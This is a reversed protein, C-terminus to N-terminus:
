RFTRRLAAFAIGLRTSALTERAVFKARQFTPARLLERRGMLRFGGDPLLDLGDLSRMADFLPEPPAAGHIFTANWFTCETVAAAEAFTVSDFTAGDFRCGTITAGPFAVDARDSQVIAGSFDCRILLSHSFSTHDLTCGRADLGVLECGDFAVRRLSTPEAGARSLAARVSRLDEVHQDEVEFGWLPLRPTDHSMVEGLSPAARRRRRRELGARRRADERWRDLRATVLGAIGGILVADLGSGGIEPGLSNVYSVDLRAWGPLALRTSLDLLWQPPATIRGLAAGALLLATAFAVALAAAAIPRM